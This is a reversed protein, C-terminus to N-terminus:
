KKPLVIDTEFVKQNEDYKWGYVIDYKQIIKKISKVGIGHTKKNQKTTKLEGNDAEPLSDCGNKIVMGDYVPTKSFINIQIFRNKSNEAADISNDLLNNMLASLDVDDVYSLNATRVDVSFKIGKSECLSAYKSIILDLMKNKSIGVYSFKGIDPYLRDVYSYISDIDDLNRIQILHNKIDHVLIRQEENKKELMEYFQRDMENRQNEQQLAIIRNEQRQFNQNVVFILCCLLISVISVVACILNIKYSFKYISSTYLFLTLMVVTIIPYIFLVFNKKIDNSANNKKYSFLTSIIKCVVFYLIKSISGIMVLEENSNRFANIPVHFIYSVSAETVIETASMIAYLLATHFIGSKISIKFSLKCYIVNILMFIIGNIIMSSDFLSNFVFGVSYLLLAIFFSVFPKLKLEYNEFFYIYAIAAGFIYVFIFFVQEIM